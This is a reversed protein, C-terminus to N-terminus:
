DDTTYIHHKLLLNTAGLPEEPLLFREAHETILKMISEKEEKNLHNLCLLDLIKHVREGSSCMVEDFTARYNTSESPLSESDLIANTAEDFSHLKLTPIAIEVDESSSNVVYLYAKGGQNSM